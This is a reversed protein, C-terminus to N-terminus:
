FGFCYKYKKALYMTGSNVSIQHIIETEQKGNIEENPM